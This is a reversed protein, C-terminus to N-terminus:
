CLKGGPTICWHQQAGQRWGSTDLVQQARARRVDVDASSPPQTLEADAADAHAGAVALTGTTAAVSLWKAFQAPSLHEHASM